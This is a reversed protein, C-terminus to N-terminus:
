GGLGVVVRDVAEVVAGAACLAASFSDKCVETDGDITGLPLSSHLRIAVDDFANQVENRSNFPM